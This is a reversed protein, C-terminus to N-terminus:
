LNIYLSCSRKPDIIYQTLKCDITDKVILAKDMIPVLHAFSLLKQYVREDQSEKKPIHERHRHFTKKNKKKTKWM